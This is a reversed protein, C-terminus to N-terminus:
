VEALGCAACEEGVFGTTDTGIEFIWRKTAACLRNVVLKGRALSLVWHCLSERGCCLSGMVVCFFRLSADMSRQADM